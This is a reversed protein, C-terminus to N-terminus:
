PGGSRLYWPLPPLDLSTYFYLHIFMLLCCAKLFIFLHL